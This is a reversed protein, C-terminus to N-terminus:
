LLPSLLPFELKQLSDPGTKAINKAPVERVGQEVECQHRRMHAHHEAHLPGLLAQERKLLEAEVADSQCSKEIVKGLTNKIKPLNTKAQAHVDGAILCYNAMGLAVGIHIVIKRARIYRM